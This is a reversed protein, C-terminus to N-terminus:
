VIKNYINGARTHRIGPGARELAHQQEGARQPRVGRTANIDPDDFSWYGVPGETLGIYLPRTIFLV